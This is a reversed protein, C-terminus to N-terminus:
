VLRAATAQVLPPHSNSATTTEAGATGATAPMLGTGALQAARSLATTAYQAIKRM